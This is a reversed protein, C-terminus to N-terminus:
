LEPPSAVTLLGSTSYSSDAKSCSSEEKIGLFDSPFDQLGGGIHIPPQQLSLDTDQPYMDEIQPFEDGHHGSRQQSFSNVDELYFLDEMYMSLQQNNEQPYSFQEQSQPLCIHSGFSQPSKSMSRDSTGSNSRHLQWQLEESCGLNTSTSSQSYAVDLALSLQQNAYRLDFSPDDMSSAPSSGDTNDHQSVKELPTNSLELLLNSTLSELVLMQQLPKGEVICLLIASLNCAQKKLGPRVFDIYDLFDQMLPRPLEHLDKDTLNDPLLSLVGYGFRRAMRALPEGLRIWYDLKEKAKARPCKEKKSVQTTMDKSLHGSYKVTEPFLLDTFRDKPSSRPLQTKRRKKPVARRAEREDIYRGVLEALAVRKSIRVAIELYELTKEVKEDRDIRAKLLLLRQDLANPTDPLVIQESAYACDDASNFLTEQYHLYDRVTALTATDAIRDLKERLAASLKMFRNKGQEPEDLAIPSKPSGAKGATPPPSLSLSLSPSQSSSPSPSPSPSPSAAAAAAVAAPPTSMAESLQGNQDSRIWFEHSKFCTYRRKELDVEATDAAKINTRKRFM